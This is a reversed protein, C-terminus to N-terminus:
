IKNNLFYFSGKSYAKRLFANLPPSVTCPEMLVEKDPMRVGPRNGPPPGGQIKDQMDLSQPISPLSGGQPIPIGGPLPNMGPGNAKNVMEIIGPLHQYLDESNFDGPSSNYLGSNRNALSFLQAYQNLNNDM